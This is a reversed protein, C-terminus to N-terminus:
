KNLQAALVASFARHAEVAAEASADLVEGYEFRM